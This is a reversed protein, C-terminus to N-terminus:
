VHVRGCRLPCALRSRGTTWKSRSGCCIRTPRMGLPTTRCPYACHLPLRKLHSGPCCDLIM